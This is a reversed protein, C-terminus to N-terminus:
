IYFIPPTNLFAGRKRRQGRPVPIEGEGSPFCFMSFRFVSLLVPRFPFKFSIWFSRKALGKRRSNMNRSTVWCRNLELRGPIRDTKKLFICPLKDMIGLTGEPCQKLFSSWTRVEFRRLFLLKRRRHLNVMSSKVVDRPRILPLSPQPGIVAIKDKESPCWRLSFRAPPVQSNYVHLCIFSM